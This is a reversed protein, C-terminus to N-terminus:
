PTTIRWLGRAFLIHPKLEPEKGFVQHAHHLAVKLCSDLIISPWNGERVLIRMMHERETPTSEGDM